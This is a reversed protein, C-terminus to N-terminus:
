RPRKLGPVLGEGSEQLMQVAAQFRGRGEAATVRIEAEWGM